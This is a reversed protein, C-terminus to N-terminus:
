FTIIAKDVLMAKAIHFFISVAFNEGSFRLAGLQLMAFMKRDKEKSGGMLGM